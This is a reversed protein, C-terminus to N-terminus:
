PPIASEHVKLLNIMLSCRYWEKSLGQYYSKACGPDRAALKAARRETRVCKVFLAQVFNSIRHHREKQAFEDPEEKTSPLLAKQEQLHEMQKM